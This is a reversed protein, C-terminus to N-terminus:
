DGLRPDQNGYLVMRDIFWPLRENLYNAVAREYSTGKKKSPSSM